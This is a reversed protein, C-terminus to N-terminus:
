SQVKHNVRNNVQRRCRSHHHSPRDPHHTGCCGDPLLSSPLVLLCHWLEFSAPYLLSFQYSSAESRSMECLKECNTNSRWGNACSLDTHGKTRQKALTLQRTRGSDMHEQKRKLGYACVELVFSDSMPWRDLYSRNQRCVQKSQPPTTFKWLGLHM